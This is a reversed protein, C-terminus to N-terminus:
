VRYRDALGRELIVVDVDVIIVLNFHNDVNFTMTLIPAYTHASSCQYMCVYVCVCVCLCVHMLVAIKEYYHNPHSESLSAGILHM